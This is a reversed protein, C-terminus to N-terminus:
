WAALWGLGAGLAAPEVPVEPIVTRVPGPPCGTLKLLHTATERRRKTPNHPANRQSHARSVRLRLPHPISLLQSRAPNEAGESHRRKASFSTQCKISASKNKIYVVHM